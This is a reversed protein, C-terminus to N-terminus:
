KQYIMVANSHVFAFEDISINSDPSLIVYKLQKCDAFAHYGIYVCTEPIRVVEAFIGQFAEAEIRETSAPITLVTLNSFDVAQYSHYDWQANTLADNYNEVSIAKRDEESGEYIVHRLSDCNWFADEGIRTVSRPLWIEELSSCYQFTGTPIVQLGSKLHISTLNRNGSFVHSDMRTLSNPLDIQKLARCNSFAAYGIEALNQPLSVSELKIFKEFGQMGIGTIGANINLHKTKLRYIKWGEASFVFMPPLKGSGNVTLTGTDEDFTWQINGEEWSVSHTTWIMEGVLTSEVIPDGNWTEKSEAPMESAYHITAHNLADNNEGITIAAWQAENGQYYIDTLNECGSFAWDEITTLSAPVSLSKLNMNHQFAARGIYTLKKPLEIYQLLWCHDFASEGIREVSEPFQIQRLSMCYIFASDGITKLHSPLSVTELQGCDYFMGYGINEMDNMFTVHKLAPCSSFVSDGMTTVNAPITMTQLSAMGYFAGEEITKLTQPLTITTVFSSGSFSYLGIEQLNQPFAAETKAGPFAVIRSLDKTYLVGKLSTYFPNDESVTISQLSDCSLTVNVGFVELSRPLSLTKLQNCEMFAFNGIESVGEEVVVSTIDQWNSFAESALPGEGCVTLNGESDLIWELNEIYGFSNTDALCVRQVFILLFLIIVTNFLREKRM